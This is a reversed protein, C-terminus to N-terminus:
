GGPRPLSRALLEDLLERSRPRLPMVQLRAGLRAIVNPDDDELNQLAIDHLQELSISWQEILDDRLYWYSDDEDVVYLIVLGAVWPEAVFEAFHEQWVSEPYLMPMIRDQVDDLPPNM